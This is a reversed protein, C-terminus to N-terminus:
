QVFVPVIATNTGGTGYCQINKTGSVATPIAADAVAGYAAKNIAKCIDDNIGGLTVVTDAGTSGFATVGTTTWTYTNTNAIPAPAIPVVKLYGKEVLATAAGSLATPTAAEKVKYSQAAGEISRLDDIVRTATSDISATAFPNGFIGVMMAVALGILVLVILMEVLTFGKQNQMKAKRGMKINARM